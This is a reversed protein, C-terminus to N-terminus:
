KKLGLFAHLKEQIFNKDFKTEAIRRSNRSMQYYQDLNKRLHEINEVLLEHDEVPHFLGIKEIEILNYIWGKFNVIVPLGMALADFFKNPSSNEM